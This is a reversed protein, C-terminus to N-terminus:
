AGSSSSMAVAVMASPLIRWALALPMGSGSPAAAVSSPVGVLVGRRGDHRQRQATGLPGANGQRELQEGTHQDARRDEGREVRVVRPTAPVALVGQEDGDIRGGEASRLAEGLPDLRRQGRELAQRDGVAHVVRALAAGGHGHLPGPM